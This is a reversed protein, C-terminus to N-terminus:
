LRFAAPEFGAGAVLSEAVKTGAPNETLLAALNGAVELGVPEPKSTPTVVIHDILDRVVTM